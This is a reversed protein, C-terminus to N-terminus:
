THYDANLRVYEATLDSTYFRITGPGDGLNIEILTERNERYSKSMNESVFGFPSAKKFLEFGNVRLTLRM